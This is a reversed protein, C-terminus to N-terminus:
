QFLLVTKIDMKVTYFIYRFSLLEEFLHGDFPLCLIFPLESHTM